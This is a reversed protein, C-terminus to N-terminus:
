EHAYFEHFNQATVLELGHDSAADQRLTVMQMYRVCARQDRFYPQENKEVFMWM